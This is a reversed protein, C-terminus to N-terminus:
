AAGKAQSASCRDASSGKVPQELTKELYEVITCDMGYVSAGCGAGANMPEKTQGHKVEKKVFIAVGDYDPIMLQPILALSVITIIILSLLIFITLNKM